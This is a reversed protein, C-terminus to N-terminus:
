WASIRKFRETARAARARHAALAARIPEVDVGRMLKGIYQRQRAAAARSSIRRAARIAESLAEPLQLADLEAERLRVLAEGLEQAALAARKRASKSPPQPTNAATM